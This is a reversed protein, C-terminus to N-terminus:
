TSGNAWAILEYRTTLDLKRRIHELHSEVTRRSISLAQAIQENSQGQATLDAVERERRTLPRDAPTPRALADAMLDDAASTAGDRMLRDAAREGVSARAKEVLTECFTTVVGPMRGGRRSMAEAAGALRLTAPIREEASALSAGAWLWEPDEVLGDSTRLDEVVVELQARHLGIDGTVAAAFALGLRATVGLAVSRCSRSARLAEAYYEKGGDFDGDEYKALGLVTLTSGRGRHDDHRRFLALGERCRAVAKTTDGTTSEVLALNRLGRARELDDGFEEFLALSREYADRAAGYDRQRWALRGLCALAVARLRQDDTGRGLCEELRARAGNIRGRQEWFYALATCLRLDLDNPRTRAWNAAALLNASERELRILHGSRDPGRLGASRTRAVDLFHAVHQDRTATETIEDAALVSEGYQRVPQLLRYRMGGCPERDAVVLSHDILTSLAPLLDDGLQTVAEAAALDFGGAFVSLRGYLQQAVPPLMRFSWDLASTMAAPDNSPGAATLLDDLRRLIETLSLVGSWTAILEIALPLGDLRRCILRVDDEALGAGAGILGARDVFLQSASEIALSPLRFLQEGPVGLPARSTALIRVGPCESLIRAALESVAGLVHECNDLVLLLEQNGLTSVFTDELADADGLAAAVAGVVGRGESVEGLLATRAEGPDPHDALELALRTKGAGPPGTITVLRNDQLLGEVESLEGERGYFRTLGLVGPRVGPATLIEPEAATSALPLPSSAAAHPPPSTWHLTPGPPPERTAVLLERQLDQLEASPSAGLTESLQNRLVEYHNLAEAPRGLRKLATLLRLWLTERLPYLEVLAQLESVRAAPDEVDLDARQEYATLYREVLDPRIREDLREAVADGLPEGRWLLLASDLLDRRVRGEAQAARDLHALFDLADVWAPGGLRYGNVDTQILDNGLARRLRGVYTQLTGRIRYPPDDGWLGRALSDFTVTRGASLALLALLTRVKRGPLAVPRGDLTVEFPGLM